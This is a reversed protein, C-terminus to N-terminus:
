KSQYVCHPRSIEVTWIAGGDEGYVGVKVGVM